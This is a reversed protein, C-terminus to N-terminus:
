HISRVYRLRVAHAHLGIRSRGTRLLWEEILEEAGGIDRVSVPSPEALLVRAPGAPDDGLVEAAWTKWATDGPSWLPAHGHYFAVLDDTHLRTPPYCLTTCHCSWAAAMVEDAAWGDNRDGPWPVPYNQAMPHM